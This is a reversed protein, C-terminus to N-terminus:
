VTTETLAGNGTFTFSASVMGDKAAERGKGTITCTGTYYTDASDAGEPYLNLTISAGITMAGQGNTDSPDWFATLSGDWSKLGVKHTAWDDALETDDIPNASENLSWDTVEAVTNAGVKVVGEKGAHTTM